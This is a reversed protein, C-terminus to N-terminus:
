RVERSVTPYAGGVRATIEDLTWWREVDMALLAIVKGVVASRLIPLLPPEAARM